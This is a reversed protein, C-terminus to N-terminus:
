PQLFSLDKRTWASSHGVCLPVTDDDLYHAWSKKKACLIVYFIYLTYVTM